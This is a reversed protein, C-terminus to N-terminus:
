YRVNALFREYNNWANQLHVRLAGLAHAADDSSLAAIISEHEAIGAAGREGHSGSYWYGDSRYRMDLRDYIDCLHKHILDNGSFSCLLLHFERDALWRSMDHDDHWLSKYVENQASLQRISSRQIGRNFALELAYLELATRLEYLNRVEDINIEAVFYGRDHVLDVLGEQLLRGLAHRVPTRSVGLEAALHVPTLKVGPKLKQRLIDARIKQYVEDNLGSPSSTASMCYPTRIFSSLPYVSNYTSRIVLQKKAPCCATEDFSYGTEDFLDQEDRSLQASKM